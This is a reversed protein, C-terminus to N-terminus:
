KKEETHIDKQKLSTLIDKSKMQIGAKLYTSISTLADATPPSDSSM